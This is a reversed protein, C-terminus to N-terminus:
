TQHPYASFADLHSAPGLIIDGMRRRFSYSRLYVVQKIPPLHLPLLIKLKATSITSPKAQKLTSILKFMYSLPQFAGRRTKNSKSM